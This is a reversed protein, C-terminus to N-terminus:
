PTEKTETPQLHDLIRQKTEPGYGSGDRDFGAAIRGRNMVLIHDGITMAEHIDHTVFLCSAQRGGILAKLMRQHEARTIADLAAFPEDMLLARPRRLLARAIGVRQAMGGSLSAPMMARAGALQVKALAADIAEKKHRSWFPLALALNEAVTLWPLLRPEQFVMACANAPMDVTGGDPATMGGAIRLLTSKGVGSPGLLCTIRGTALALSVDTLVPKGGYSKYIHALSQM